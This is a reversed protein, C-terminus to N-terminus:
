EITVYLKFHKDIYTFIRIGPPYKLVIADRTINPFSLKM